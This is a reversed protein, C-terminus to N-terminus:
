NAAAPEDDLAWVSLDDNGSVGDDGYSIIDYAKGNPAPTVYVFDHRWGDKPTKGLYGPTLEALSTPYRNKELHFQQIAGDITRISQKTAGEKAAKGRGSLSIVAVTALVGMIVVVLMMELLTFAKRRRRNPLTNNMSTSRNKTADM